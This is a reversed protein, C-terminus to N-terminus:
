TGQPEPSTVCRPADKAKQVDKAKEDKAKENAAVAGLGCVDLGIALEKSGRRELALRWRQDAPKRLLAVIGIHSVDGPVMEETRYSRGPLLVLERVGALADGFLAKEAAVDGIQAYRLTDFATTGRLQYIRVVVSLPQGGDTTNADSSTTITIPQVRLADPSSPAKLGATELAANMAAGAIQVAPVAGCASVFLSALIVTLRAHARKM